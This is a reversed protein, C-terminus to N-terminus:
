QLFQHKIFESTAPMRAAIADFPVAMVKVRSLDPVRQPAKVAPNLPIQLSRMGALQTEVAPSLLFDVLKRGAEPHPAGKILAVTNPIILVGPEDAGQDPFVWRAPLGDEVAGNADDTDTLGIAYDGRAVRDRVTANGELVAVDNRQLGLFFQQARADGWVAFLAAAHTATTGFLPKAIAARGKWEPKLLDLVSQPPEKVLETNYILVRGRAAFGTWYGEADKFSAPIADAAPSRYPELVGEHKLLITQAVENNWFVDARPRSREAVLRTRLGTTKSAETDYGARVQIGTEKTFADLIPRSYMEDLAAYVVVIGPQSVSQQSRDVSSSPSCSVLATFPMILTFASLSRM